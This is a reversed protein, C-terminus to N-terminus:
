KNKILTKFDELSDSNSILDYVDKKSIYESSVELISNLYGEIIKKANKKVGGVTYLLKLSLKLSILRLKLINKM